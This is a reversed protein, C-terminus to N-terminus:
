DVQTGGSDKRADRLQKMLRMTEEQMQAKTLDHKETVTAGSVRLLKAVALCVLMCSDAVSHDQQEITCTKSDVADHFPSTLAKPDAHAPRYKSNGIVLALCKITTCDYM